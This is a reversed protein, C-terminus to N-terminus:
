MRRKRREEEDLGEYKRPRGRKRYTGDLSYTDGDDLACADRPRPFGGSPDPVVVSPQSALDPAGYTAPAALLQAPQPSATSEEASIVELKVFPTIASM